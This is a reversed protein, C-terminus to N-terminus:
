VDTELQTNAVVHRPPVQSGSPWVTHERQGAPMHPDTEPAVLLVVHMSQGVPDQLVVPEPEQVDQEFPVQDLTTFAVVPVTQVAQGANFYESTAPAVEEVM